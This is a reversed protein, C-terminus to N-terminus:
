SYLFYFRQIIRKMPKVLIQRKKDLTEIESFKEKLEDIERVM